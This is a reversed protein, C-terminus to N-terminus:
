PNLGAVALQANTQPERLSFGAYFVGAAFMMMVIVLAFLGLAQPAAHPRYRM